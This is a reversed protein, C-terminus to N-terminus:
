QLFYVVFQVSAHFLMMMIVPAHVALDHVIIHSDPIMNHLRVLPPVSLLNTPELPGPRPLLQRTPLCHCGEGCRPHTSPMRQGTLQGCSTYYLKRTTTGKNRKGNRWQTMRGAESNWRQKRRVCSRSGRHGSERIGENRETARM